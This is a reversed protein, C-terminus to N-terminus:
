KVMFVHGALSGVPDADQGFRTGVDRRREEGRGARQQGAQGTQAQVAEDAAAVAPVVLWTRVPGRKYRRPGTRGM